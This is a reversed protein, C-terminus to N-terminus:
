RHGLAQSIERAAGVVLPALVCVRQGDLEFAMSSISIGGIPTNRYAYVTAGIRPTALENEENGIAYGRRATERPHRVLEEPDDITRSTVAPTGARRLIGRVEDEPLAALLARGFVWVQEM